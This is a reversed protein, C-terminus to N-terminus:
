FYQSKGPTSGQPYLFVWLFDIGLVVSLLNLSLSKMAQSLHEVKVGIILKRKLSEDGQSM